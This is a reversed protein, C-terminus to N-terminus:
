GSASFRVLVDVRVPQELLLRGRDDRGAATLVAAAITQRDSEIVAHRSPDVAVIREFFDDVSGFVEKRVYEFSASRALEGAALAAKIARQAAHRVATEDEVPRLAAFFSGSALPEIVILSGDPRLVRVAERLAAPMAVEPVHHLSNVITTLDFEGTAFPLEEAVATTFMATPVAASAVRIADPLPDIGHVIAGNGALQKALGGSGCGIDLIRLGAISPRVSRIVDLPSGIDTM